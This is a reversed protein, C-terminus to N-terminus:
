SKVKPLAKGLAELVGCIDNETVLGLHGIRFIKGSLDGQGGALVIGHEDQMLKVLKGSDFTDGKVSTVTNSAHKEDAFLTLGCSKVGERTMRGIRAHRDFINQLGEASLMDLAVDLAFLISVAPTWPTQAKELYSKAKSLDFYFRPMKAESYAKWARDNVSIMSLGPPVM